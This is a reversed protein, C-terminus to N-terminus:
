IVLFCGYFYIMSAPFRVCISFLYRIRALCKLFGGPFKNKGFDSTDFFERFECFRQFWYKARLEFGNVKYTIRWLVCNISTPFLTVNIYPHILNSQHNEILISNHTKWVVENENRVIAAIGYTKKGFLYIKRLVGVKGRFNKKKHAHTINPPVQLLFINWTSGSGNEPACFCIQGWFVMQM